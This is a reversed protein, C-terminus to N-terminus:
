MNKLTNNEALDFANKLYADDIAKGETADKLMTAMLSGVETRAQSSGKFAPTTFVWSTTSSSYVANRATLLETSMAPKGTTDCYEFYAESSYASSRVPLYGVEIAWKATNVTNTLHKYFLWSALVRDNDKHSLICVSPGQSILKPNEVDKQPVRAVGVEFEGSVQNKVGATSGISFLVNREKFYNSSYSKGIVAPSRLYGKKGAEAFKKMLNKMNDNNFDLSPMRIDDLSTYGYGYQEALTIFLNADSDYGVYSNMSGEKKVILPADPHAADYAEFAPCLNDFLEDWTLSEIYDKNMQIGRTALFSVLESDFLRTENYFMAETSKSFPLCYTGEVQLTQGEKLFGQVMDKKEQKTWGYDENDMYDDLKVAKGYDIYDAVHDPYCVVLDGYEGTGIDSITQNHITDYNGSVWGDDLNIKVHPEIEKFSDVFEQLKPQYGQAYSQVFKITVDHDFHGLKEGGGESNGGGGNESNDKNTKGFMCGTLALMSTVALIPILKKQM